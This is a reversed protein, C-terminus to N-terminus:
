HGHGGHAPETESTATDTAQSAGLALPEYGEYQVVVIMGGPEVGDNATHHLEHCHFVWVGPNDAVFDIEYTKGPAIDLTNVIRPESLPHGDEAIVRFDHGHLHMPHNANTINALRIRVRDGESVTLTETDPYSKGNITWYNYDMAHGGETMPGADMGGEMMAHDDGSMVNWAGIMLSFDRDYEPHGASDQPDIIFMGYLGRDIQEISHETAHSHFMFTGAHNALFEYVFAEGPQIEEQTLPPVGDMGFPVHLGHWHVSTPQSINNVVTIRVWDGETVRITQAPTQGNFVFASTTVGDTIEWETVDAVLTFEKTEGTPIILDTEPLPPLNRLAQTTLNATSRVMQAHTVASMLLAGFLVLVTVVTTSRVLIRM